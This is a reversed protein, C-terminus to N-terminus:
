FTETSVVNSSEKLLPILVYGQTTPEISFNIEDDLVINFKGDENLVEFMPYGLKPDDLVELLIKHTNSKSWTFGCFEETTAIIGKGSKPIIIEKIGYFNKFLLDKQKKNLKPIYDNLYPLSKSSNKEDTIRKIAM